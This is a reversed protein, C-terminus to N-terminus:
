PQQPWVLRAASLLPSAAAAFRLCVCAMRVAYIRPESTRLLRSIKQLETRFVQWRGGEGFQAQSTRVRNPSIRCACRDSGARSWVRRAAASRLQAPIRATLDGAHTAVDMAIPAYLNQSHQRYYCLPRDPHRAGGLALAFAFIPADAFFRVRPSRSRNPESNRPSGFAPKHRATYTRM